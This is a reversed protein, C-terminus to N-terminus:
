FQNNGISCDDGPSNGERCDDLASNGFSTCDNDKINEGSVCSQGVIPATSGLDVATPKEYSIKTAPRDEESKM